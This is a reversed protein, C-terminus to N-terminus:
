ADDIGDLATHLAVEGQEAVATRWGVDDIYFHDRM